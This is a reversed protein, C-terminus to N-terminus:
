VRYGMGGVGIGWGVLGWVGGWWGRYWVGGVGIGCGM